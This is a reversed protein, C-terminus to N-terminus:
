RCGSMKFWRSRYHFRAGWRLFKLIYGHLVELVAPAGGDRDLFMPSNLDSFTANPPVFNGEQWKCRSTRSRLEVNWPDLVILLSILSPSTVHLLQLVRLVPIQRKSRKPESPESIQFMAFTRGLLVHFWSRPPQTLCTSAVVQLNGDSWLTSILGWHTNFSHLFFPCSQVHHYRLSQSM